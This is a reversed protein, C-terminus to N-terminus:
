IPGGEQGSSVSSQEALNGRGFGPINLSGISTLAGTALKASMVAIMGRKSIKIGNAYIIYNLFDIAGVPGIVPLNVSALRQVNGGTVNDITKMLLDTGIGGAATGLIGKSGAEFKKAFKQVPAILSGLILSRGKQM